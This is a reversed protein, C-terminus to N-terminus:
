YDACRSPIDIMFSFSTLVLKRQFKKGEERRRWRGGEGGRGEEEEEEEQEEMEKKITV